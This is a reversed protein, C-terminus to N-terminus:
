KRRVYKFDYVVSWTKGGDLSRQAFQRVTDPDIDFFTLRQIQTENGSQVPETEYRMAGDSFTGSYRTPVGNRGIWYQYWKKTGSDYFNLSRGNGGYFDTWNEMIACGVASKEIVSTGVKRSGLNYVDWHGVWFDFQRAEKSYMCPNRQMDIKILLTEFRPDDALSSLDTDHAPDSYIPLGADVAKGLWEFAKEKQSQLAYSCAINYMTVPNAHLANEKEFAEIALDYEKLSYRSMGLGNLARSNNPQDTLLKEYAQAAENWQHAKLLSDAKAVSKPQLSQAILFLPVFAALGAALTLRCTNAFQSMVQDGTFTSKTNQQHRNWDFRHNRLDDAPM